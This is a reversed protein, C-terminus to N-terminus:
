SKQYNNITAFSPCNFINRSSCLSTHVAATLYPGVSTSSLLNPISHILSTHSSLYGANSQGNPSLTPLMPSANKATSSLTDTPLGFFVHYSTSVLFRFGLLHSLIFLYIYITLNFSITCWTQCVEMFHNFSVWMFMSNGKFTPSWYLFTICLSTLLNKLTYPSRKKIDFHLPKIYIYCKCTPVFFWM